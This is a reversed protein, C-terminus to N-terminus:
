GGKLLRSIPRTTDFHDMVIIAVATLPVALFMGPLGWLLGWFSLSALIVLPSVGVANGIILPEVVSASAIHIVLLAVAATIPEWRVGHFLFAFGVPLIYAIVSGIYPIFNCLFTLTAWLLAFKVGVAWLVLGVPLALVFSSRLKARLYSIIAASVQGAIDLIAEAREPPYARRVRDPFRSGELLLFLLYLAVVCAELLADAAVALLPSTFRSVHEVLKSQSPGGNGDPEDAWPAARGLFSELQRTMEVARAELRPRDDSIGLVSVYVAIALAFLALGTMSVLVGISAPAGIHRRLRGHYPMLVYALFVAVFLPRLLPTLIQLLYWAAMLAILPLTVTVVALALVPDSWRPLRRAVPQEQGIRDSPDPADSM